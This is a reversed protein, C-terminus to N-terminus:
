RHYRPMGARLMKGSLHDHAANVVLQAAAKGAIGSRAVPQRGMEFLHEVVISQENPDSHRRGVLGSGKYLSVMSLRQSEDLPLNVLGSPPKKIGGQIGIRFAHLALKRKSM